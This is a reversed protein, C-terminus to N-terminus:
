FSLSKLWDGVRDLWGPPSPDPTRGYGFGHGGKPYGQLVSSVGAKQLAAYMLQGNQPKVLADDEPYAIYTPPTQPTVQTENSLSAILEASPNAGLLNQRSGPHTVDDKMSIVPYVLVAFDPRSSKRDIQDLTLPDGADFHTEVTSALHGGASFGMIGIKHPDIGWEDAHARVFRIAREGDLMPVPHHYGELATRYKLVFAAIGHSQFWAAVNLGEVEFAEGWYGGGPCIVVAMRPLIEKPLLFETLAPTDKPEIGQSLPAPGNWLPIVPSAAAECLGAAKEFAERAGDVGLPCQILFITILGRKPDITMHTQFAGHHFLPDGPHFGVSWCLGWPGWPVPITGTQVQTMRKITEESLYHKGDVTGGALYMRCFKLIDSATSFLGGSPAPNRAPNDLPYTFYGIPVVDLATKAANQQYAKAMRAVQELSPWFTTDNMGLPEFIRQSIFKAYPKGSAAEIIRGLIDIGLNSYSFKAGPQADLSQLAAVAEMTVLDDHDLRPDLSSTPALGSTHTLLDRITMSRLPKHLLVHDADKEVAVMQSRFSPLYKVVPDDINLKGEEALMMVATATMPKTMSAIWFMTNGQMPKKAELDAYGLTNLSLIKQRTAALTVLGAVQHHDIYPQLAAVIRPDDPPPPEQAQVCFEGLLILAAIALLRSFSSLTLMALLHSGRFVVKRLRTSPSLGTQPTSSRM